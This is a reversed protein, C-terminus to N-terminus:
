RAPAGIFDVFHGFMQVVNADKPQVTPFEDPHVFRDAFWPFSEPNFCQRLWDVTERIVPVNRARAHYFFFLPVRVPLPLALPVLRSTLVRTYSPLIALGSGSAAAYAQTLSSNTRIATTSKPRDSGLLMDLITMNYGPAAQEVFMHDRLDDISKPEGYTNLYLPSAFLMFHLTAVKSVIFDGSTPPRYTLGLDVSASRDRQLDYDFELHITVPEIRARLESIRPTLWSAGVGETCGIQLIGPLLLGDDEHSQGMLRSDALARAQAFLRQGAPTLSSGRVDRRLLPVGADQELRELRARVTNVSVSQQRAAERLSGTEGVSLLVKLDSWDLDSLHVHRESGTNLGHVAPASNKITEGPAERRLKETM